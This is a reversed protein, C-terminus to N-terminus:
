RSGSRTRGYRMALGVGLLVATASGMVMLDMPTASLFCLAAMLLGILM